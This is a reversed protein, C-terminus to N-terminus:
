ASFEVFVFDNIKQILSDSFFEFPISTQTVLEFENRSGKYKYKRYRYYNQIDFPPLDLDGWQNSLM